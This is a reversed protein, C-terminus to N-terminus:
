KLLKLCSHSFYKEYYKKGRIEEAKDVANRLIELEREEFTESARM